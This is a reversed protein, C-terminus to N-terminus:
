CSTSPKPRTSGRRAAPPAPSTHPNRDITVTLEVEGGEAVTNEKQSVMPKPLKHVDLVEFEVEDSGVDRYAGTDIAYSVVEAVLKLTDNKRNGDNKDLTLTVSEKEAPGPM